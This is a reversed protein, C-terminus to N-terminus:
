SPTPRQIKESMSVLFPTKAQQYRWGDVAGKAVGEAVIQKKLADYAQADVPHRRMHDRFAIWGVYIDSEPALVYSLLTYDRGQYPLTGVLLPLFHRFPSDQFGLGYLSQKIAAQDPQQAPIVIDLANRGGLGPISSSGVHEVRANPLAQQIISRIAEFAQPLSPDYPHYEVKDSGATMPKIPNM